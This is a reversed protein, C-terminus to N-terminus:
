QTLFSNKEVFAKEFLNNKSSFFTGENFSSTIAFKNTSDAVFAKLEIPPSNSAEVRITFDPQNYDVSANDFFDSSSLQALINLYNTISTSDALLGDVLYKDGQKMLSFSRNGPYSFVIKAIDSSRVEILTRDRLSKIDSQFAMKLFGDVAYVVDDDTLRVYSTMKGQQQQYPNAGQQPKYSFKGIMLDSLVRSGDLLQVRIGTSDGVQFENWRAKDTAAVREPTLSALTSILNDVAMINANFINNNENIAWRDNNKIIRIEKSTGPDPWYVIGSVEDISITVLEHKFSREGKKSEIYRSIFVAVLLAVFLVILVKFNLKKFM